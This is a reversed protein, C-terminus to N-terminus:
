LYSKATEYEMKEIHIDAKYDYATTLIYIEQQLEHDRCLQICRDLYQQATDLNGLEYHAVGYLSVYMDAM